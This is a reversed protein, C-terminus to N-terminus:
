TPCVGGVTASPPPHNPLASWRGPVSPTGSGWPLVTLDEGMARPHIDNCGTSLFLFPSPNFPLIPTTGYPVHTVRVCWVYM